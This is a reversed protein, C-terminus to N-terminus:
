QQVLFYELLEDYAMNSYKNIWRTCRKIKVADDPYSEMTSSYSEIRSARFGELMEIDLERLKITVEM